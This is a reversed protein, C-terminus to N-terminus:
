WEVHNFTVANVFMLQLTVLMISREMHMISGNFICFEFETSSWVRQLNLHKFFFFLYVKNKKSKKEKETAGRKAKQESEALWAAEEERILEEQKKLAVAEQYAVEIKNSCTPPFIFKPYISSCVLLYVLETGM